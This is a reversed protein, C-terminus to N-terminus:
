GRGDNGGKGTFKFKQGCHQCTVEFEDVREDKGRYVIGKMINGDKKRLEALDFRNPKNCHVCACNVFPPM